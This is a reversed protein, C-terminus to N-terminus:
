RVGGFSRSLELEERTAQRALMLARGLDRDDGRGDAEQVVRLAESRRRKADELPQSQASSFIQGTLLSWLNPWRTM